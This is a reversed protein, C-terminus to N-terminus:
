VRNGEIEGGRVEVKGYLPLLNKPPSPPLFVGVLSLFLLLYSFLLFLFYIFLIRIYHFLLTVDERLSM